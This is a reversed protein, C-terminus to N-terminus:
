AGCSDHDKGPPMERENREGRQGGAIRRPTPMPAGGTPAVRLYRVDYTTDLTVTLIKKKLLRL